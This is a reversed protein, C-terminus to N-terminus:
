RGNVLACSEGKATGAVSRALRAMRRRRASSSAEDGAAAKAVAARLSPSLGAERALTEVTDAANKAEGDPGPSSMAARTVSLLFRPSK